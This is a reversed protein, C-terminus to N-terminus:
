DRTSRQEIDYQFPNHHKSDPILFTEFHSKFLSTWAELNAMSLEALTIRVFFLELLSSQITRQQCFPANILVPGRASGQEISNYSPAGAIGM